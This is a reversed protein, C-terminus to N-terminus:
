SNRLKKLEVHYVAINGSAPLSIEKGCGGRHLRDITKLDSGGEQLWSINYWFYFLRLFSLYYAFKVTTTM